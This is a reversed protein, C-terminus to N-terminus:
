LTLRSLSFNKLESVRDFILVRAPDGTKDLLKSDVSGPNCKTPSAAALLKPGTILNANPASNVARMIVFATALDSARSETVNVVGADILAESYIVRGSLRMFGSVIAM